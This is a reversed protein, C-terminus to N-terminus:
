TPSSTTTATTTPLLLLPLYYFYHYTTSTTSTPTTTTTTNTSPLCLSLLGVFRVGVAGGSGVAGFARTRLIDHTAGNDKIYIWARSSSSSSIDLNFAGLGEVAVYGACLWMDGGAGSGITAPTWELKGRVVLAAVNLHTEMRLTLGPPIICLSTSGCQAAASAASVYLGDPTSAQLVVEVAANAANVADGNFSRCQDLLAQPARDDLASYSDAIITSFNSMYVDEDNEQFGSGGGTGRLSTAAPPAEPFPACKASPLLALALTLALTWARAM